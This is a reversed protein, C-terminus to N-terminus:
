APMSDHMRRRAPRYHRIQNQLTCRISRRASASHPRNLSSRRISSRNTSRPRRRGRRQWRRAYGRGATLRRLGTRREPRRHVFTLSEVRRVALRKATEGGRNGPPQRPKDVACCCREASATSELRACQARPWPCYNTANSPHRFAAPDVARHVASPDALVAPATAMWPTARRPGDAVVPIEGGSSKM